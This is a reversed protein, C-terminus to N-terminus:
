TSWGSYLKLKNQTNETGMFSGFFDSGLGFDCSFQHSPDGADGLSEGLVLAKEPGAGPTGLKRDVERQHTEWVTQPRWM